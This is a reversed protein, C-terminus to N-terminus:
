RDRAAAERHHTCGACDEPHWWREPRRRGWTALIHGQGDCAAHNGRHFQDQTCIFSRAPDPFKGAVVALALGAVYVTVRQGPQTM